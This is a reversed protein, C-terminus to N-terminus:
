YLIIGSSMKDFKCNFYGDISPYEAILNGAATAPTYQAAESFSTLAPTLSISVGVSKCGDKLSQFFENGYEDVTDGGYTSVLVNTNWRMSSSSSSYKTIMTQMFTTNWYTNCTSYSMDFSFMLKFGMSEAATYADDIRDVQWARSPYSCDPPIWNLSFGDIGIQQASAMDKKWQNVTYAFSNDLMFHAFVSGAAAYQVRFAVLLLLSMMKSLM